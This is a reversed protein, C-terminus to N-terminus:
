FNEPNLFLFIGFKCQWSINSRQSEREKRFILPVIYYVLALLLYNCFNQTFPISVGHHRWLASSASSTGTICLSLLQGLGVAAITKKRLM